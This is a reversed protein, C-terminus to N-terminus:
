NSDIEKRPSPFLCDNFHLKRAVISGDAKDQERM